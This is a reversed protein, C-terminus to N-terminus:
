LAFPMGQSSSKSNEVKPNMLFSADMYPVLKDLTAPIDENPCSSGHFSNQVDVLVSELGSIANEVKTSVFSYDRLRNFVKDALQSLSVRTLSTPKGETLANKRSTVFREINTAVSDFLSSSIDFSKAIGDLEFSLRTAQSKSITMGFSIQSDVYEKTPARGSLSREYEPNEEIQKIALEDLKTVLSEKWDSFEQQLTKIEPILADLKDETIAFGLDSKFGHLELLRKLKAKINGGTKVSEKPLSYMSGLSALKEPPLSAKEIGVDDPTMQFRGGILTIDLSVFILKDLTSNTRKVQVGPIPTNNQKSM